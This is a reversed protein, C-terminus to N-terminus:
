TGLGERTLEPILSFPMWLVSIKKKLDIPIRVNIFRNGVLASEVPQKGNTSIEFCLYFKQLM